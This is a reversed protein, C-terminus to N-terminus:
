AARRRADSIGNIRTEADNIEMELRTRLATNGFGSVEQRWRNIKKGLDIASGSRGKNIDDLLESMTDRMVSAREQEYTDSPSRMEVTPMEPETTREVSIQEQATEVGKGANHIANDLQGMVRRVDATLAGNAVLADQIARMDEPNTLSGLGKDLAAVIQQAKTEATGASAIAAKVEFLTQAAQHEKLHIVEGM